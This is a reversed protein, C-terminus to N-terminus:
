FVAFISLAPAVSLPTPAAMAATHKPLATGCVVLCSCTLYALPLQWQQTAETLHQRNSFTRLCLLVNSDVHWFM